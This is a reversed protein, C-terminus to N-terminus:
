KTPHLYEREGVPTAWGMGDSTLAVVRGAGLSVEANVHRTASKPGASGSAPGEYTQIWLSEEHGFPCADVGEAGNAARIPAPRSRRPPTVTVM